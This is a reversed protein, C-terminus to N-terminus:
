NDNSRKIISVNGKANKGTVSVKYKGDEPIDVSFSSTPIDVGKYIHAEGEKQLIIDVRGSESIIKFDVIDGKKLDLIQSDEVNLVRYDMILQSDNGTRNGNFKTSNFKTISCASFLFMLLIVIFIKNVKKM